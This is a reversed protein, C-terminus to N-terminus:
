KTFFLGSTMDLYNLGSYNPYELEIKEKMEQANHCTKAIEKVNELYAIKTKVDKQDEPTYHSTLVLDIGDNLFHNLQHIMGDAHNSNAVISHCDHGLMHTYVCNIEPIIIDYAENNSQIIFNIGGIVQKGDKIVSVDKEVLPDFSTQFANIFKSILNSGGGVSNYEISSKTGYTTVNKM